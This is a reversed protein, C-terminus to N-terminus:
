ASWDAARQLRSLNGIRSIIPAPTSRLPALMPPLSPCGNGVIDYIRKRAPPTCHVIDLIMGLEIMKEIVQEGFDELGLTLDRYGQFCGLTQMSEPYPFCPHVAENKYFHALTLYVVGRDFFHQLKDLSGEISHAGEINHIM